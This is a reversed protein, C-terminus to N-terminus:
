VRRRSSRRACPRCIGNRPPESTTEETDLGLDEGLPLSPGDHRGKGSPCRPELGVEACRWGRDAPRYGRQSAAGAPSRGLPQAHRRTLVPRRPQDAGLCGLRAKAGAHDAEAVPRPPASTAAARDDSGRAAFGGGHLRQRRLLLPRPRRVPDRRLSPWAAARARGVEAWRSRRMLGRRRRVILTATRAGASFPTGTLRVARRGRGRDAASESDHGPPWVGPLIVFHVSMLHWLCRPVLSSGRRARRFGIGDGCVQVSVVGSGM